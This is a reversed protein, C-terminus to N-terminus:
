LASSKLPSLDGSFTVIGQAQYFVDRRGIDKLASLFFRQASVPAAFVSFRLGTRGSM